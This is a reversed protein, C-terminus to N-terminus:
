FLRLVFCALLPPSHKTFYNLLYPLGNCDYTTRWFFSSNSSHCASSGETQNANLSCKPCIFHVPYMTTSLSSFFPYEPCIRVSDFPEVLQYSSIHPVVVVLAPAFSLLRMFLCGFYFRRLWHQEGRLHGNLLQRPTQSEWIFYGIQAIDTPYWFFFFNETDSGKAAQWHFARRFALFIYYFNTVGDVNGRKGGKRKKMEKERKWEGKRPVNLFCYFHGKIAFLKKM